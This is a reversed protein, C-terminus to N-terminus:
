IHWYGLFIIFTVCAPIITNTYSSMKLIILIRSYDQKCYTIYYLIRFQIRGGLVLITFTFIYIMFFSIMYYLISTCAYPNICTNYFINIMTVWYLLSSSRWKRVRTKCIVKKVMYPVHTDFLNVMVNHLSDLSKNNSCLFLAVCTYYIM